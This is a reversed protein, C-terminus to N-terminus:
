WRRPDLHHQLGNWAEATDESRQHPRRFQTVYLCVETLDWRLRYLQMAEQQVVRGTLRRYHDVVQPDEERLSWLDREPPALLLTDWDILVVGAHTAITNGPHPEGHTPVLGAGAAVVSVVLERYRELADTLPGAHRALLGRTSEAFPGASWTSGLDELAGRLGTLNPLAFDDGLVVTCESPDVAHLQALRGLVADRRERDPYAGWTGTRGEVFPYLALVYRDGLARLVGGSADPLPAVVFGLGADRLCRAGALAATLRRVATVVPEADDGGRVLLDDVSAFWRQGDRRVWWHYSGFGVPAYEVHAGYLGWGEGLGRVVEEDSLGEPRTLM